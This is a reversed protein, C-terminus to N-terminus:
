SQTITLTISLEFASTKTIPGFPAIRNLLTTGNDSGLENISINAESTLFLTSASVSTGTRVAATTYAKFVSGTLGTDGVAAATASTGVGIRTMAGVSSLGFLRDLIMQKGVTVILNHGEATQVATRGWKGMSGPVHLKRAIKQALSPAPLLEAKWYGKLTPITDTPLTM